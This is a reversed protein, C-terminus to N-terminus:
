NSSYARWDCNRASTDDDPDSLKMGGHHFVDKEKLWKIRAEIAKVLKEARATPNLREGNRGVETVKISLFDRDAVRKAKQKVEQRFQSAIRYM